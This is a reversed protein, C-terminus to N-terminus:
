FVDLYMWEESSYKRLSSTCALLVGVYLVVWVAFYIAMLTWDELIWPVISIVHDMWAAPLHTKLSFSLGSGVTMMLHDMWDNLQKGEEEARAIGWPDKKKKKKRQWFM